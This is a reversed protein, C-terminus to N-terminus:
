SRYIERKIKNATNKLTGSTILLERFNEAKFCTKISDEFTEISRGDYLIAEGSKTFPWDLRLNKSFRGTLYGESRKILGRVELEQLRILYTRMGAWEVLKDTHVNIFLRHRRPYYFKVLNFLFRMRPLSGKTIKVIEILDPKSIYGNFSNHIEDPYVKTLNYKEYICSAQRFIEKKVERPNRLIDKSFGNHKQQIWSFTIEEAIEQSYNKRWLYYLIKFQAEHRSSPSQLGYELLNEANLTANKIIPEKSLSLNLEYQQYRVSGIDFPNLKEFWYLKEKWTELFAYELDLAKQSFGFPLRICKNAQPYIEIQRELGYNKFASNLLNITPPNEKFEPRFLLHYSDKSESSFLMSNKETLELEARIDNVFNLERSDIDLIAFQPYWKGLSGVNYRGNLHSLIPIDSLSKNKTKWTRGTKVTYRPSRQVFYNVYERFEPEREVKSKKNQQSISIM